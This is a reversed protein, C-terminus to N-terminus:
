SLSSASLLLSFSFSDSRSKKLDRTVTCEEEAKFYFDKNFKLLKEDSWLIEIQFM